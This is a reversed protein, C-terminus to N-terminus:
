AGPKTGTKSGCEWTSVTYDFHLAGMGIMHCFHLVGVMGIM